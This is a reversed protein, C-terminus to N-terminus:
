IKKINALIEKVIHEVSAMKGEGSDGCVAEGTDPPIVQYGYGKIKQINAKVAPHAYMAPNMSPAMWKQGEFSLLLTALLNPAAGVAAMSIIDASAPAVLLLDAKKRLDIHAMSGGHDTDSVYVPNNSLASLIVPSIWTSATPTMVVTVQVGEKTLQRAIDCSKYIAISASVGLIIKM